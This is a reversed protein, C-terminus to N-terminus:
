LVYLVASIYACPCLVNNVAVRLLMSVGNCVGATMVAWEDSASIGSATVIWDVKFSVGRFARRMSGSGRAKRSDRIGPLSKAKRFLAADVKSGESSKGSIGGEM